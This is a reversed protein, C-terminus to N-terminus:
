SRCTCGKLTCIRILEAYWLYFGIHFKGSTRVKTEQLSALCPSDAVYPRYRKSRPNQSIYGTNSGRYSRLPGVIAATNILVDVRGFKEIATNIIKEGETVSNSDAVASLGMQHIYQVVEASASESSGEGSLSGGLDNVVVNAGAKAFAVSIARGLAGAGGTVIVTRNAFSLMKSKFELSLLRIVTRPPAELL